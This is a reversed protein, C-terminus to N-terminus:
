VGSAHRRRQCAHRPRSTRLHRLRRGPALDRYPQRAAIGAPDDLGLNPMTIDGEVLTIRGALSAEAALLGDAKRRALDAFKAQVLCVARRQPDRRLVRPLLEVGLFGPFGTVLSVTM